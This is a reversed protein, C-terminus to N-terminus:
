YSLIDDPEVGLRSAIKALTSEHPKVVEGREIRGIEKEDIGSFDTQKLGKQLRLRRLCAGLTKESKSREKKLQKRFEPDFEYLLSEVSAEYDGLAITQGHDTVGLKTFDPETGDGSKHFVSFPALLKEFNGRVLILTENKRDLEVSIIYKEPSDSSLVEIMESVSLSTEEQAVVLNKFILALKSKL